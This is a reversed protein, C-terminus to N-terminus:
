FVPASFYFGFSFLYIFCSFSPIGKLAALGFPLICYYMMVVRTFTVFSDHRDGSIHKLGCRVFCSQKCMYRLACNYDMEHICCNM